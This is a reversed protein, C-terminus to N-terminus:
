MLVLHQDVNEDLKEGTEELDALDLDAGLLELLESM